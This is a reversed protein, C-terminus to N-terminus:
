PPWQVLQRTGFGLRNNLYFAREPALAYLESRFRQKFEDLDFSDRDFFDKVTPFKKIYAGFASAASPGMGVQEVRGDMQLGEIDRWDESDRFIAGACRRGDLVAGIHRSKPSSFFYLRDGRLVYYVPASWPEPDATALVLTRQTELLRRLSEGIERFDSIDSTEGTM